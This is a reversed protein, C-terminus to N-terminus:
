LEGIKVHGYAYAPISHDENITVNNLQLLPQDAVAVVDLAM